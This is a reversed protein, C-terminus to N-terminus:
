PSRSDWFAGKDRDRRIYQLGEWFVREWLFFIEIKQKKYIFYLYWCFDRRIYQCGEWFVWGQERECFFIEINWKKYIIYYWLILLLDAQFIEFCRRKWIELNRCHDGNFPFTWHWFLSEIDCSVADNQLQPVMIFCFALFWYLQRVERNKILTKGSSSNKESLILPSTRSDQSARTSISCFSPEQALVLNDSLLRNIAVKFYGLSAFGPCAVLRCLLVKFKVISKPPHPKSSDLVFLSETHPRGVWSDVSSLLCERRKALKM